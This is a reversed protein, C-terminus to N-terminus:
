TTNAVGNYTFSVSTIDTTNFYVYTNGVPSTTGAAGGSGSVTTSTGSTATVSNFASTAVQTPAIAGVGAKNATFVAFETNDVEYHAYGVSDVVGGPQGPIDI